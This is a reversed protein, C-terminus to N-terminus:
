VNFEYLQTESITGDASKVKKKKIKVLNHQILGSILSIAGTYDCHLNRKDFDTNFWLFDVIDFAECEGCSAKGNLYLAISKVDVNAKLFARYDSKEPLNTNPKIKNTVNDSYTPLLSYFDLIDSFSIMFSQLSKFETVNLFDVDNVYFHTEANRLNEMLTLGSSIDAIVEPHLKYFDKFIDKHIDHLEHFEISYFLYHGSSDKTGNAKFYNNLDTASYYDKAPQGNSDIKKVKAVRYDNIDLMRQKMLLEVSNHLMSVFIKKYLLTVYGELILNCHICAQSWAERANSILIKEGM